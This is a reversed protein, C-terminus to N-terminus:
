RLLLHFGPKYPIASRMKDPCINSILQEIHLSTYYHYKPWLLLCTPAPPSTSNVNLIIIAVLDNPAFFFSPLILHMKGENLNRPYIKSENLICPYFKDINVSTM